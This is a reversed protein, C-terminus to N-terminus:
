QAVACGGCAAHGGIVIGKTQYAARELVVLSLSPWTWHLIFVINKDINHMKDYSMLQIHRRKLVYIDNYMQVRSAARVLRRTDKRNLWTM